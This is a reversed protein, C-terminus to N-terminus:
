LNIGYIKTFPAYGTSTADSSSARFYHGTSITLENTATHQVLRYSVYVYNPQKSTWGVARQTSLDSLPFGTYGINNSGYDTEDYMEFLIFDYNELGSITLTGSALKPSSSTDPNSWLLTASSGGGGVKLARMLM